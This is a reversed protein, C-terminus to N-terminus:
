EVLESPYGVESKSGQLGGEVPSPTRQGSRNGGAFSVGRSLTVKSRKLSARGDRLLRRSVADAPIALLKEDIRYLTDGARGSTPLVSVPSVQREPTTISTSTVGGCPTPAPSLVGSLPPTTSPASSGSSCSPPTTTAAPAQAASATSFAPGPRPAPAPRLSALQTYNVNVRVGEERIKINRRKIMEVDEEDIRNSNNSVDRIQQESTLAPRAAPSACSTESSVSEQHRRLREDFYELARIEAMTRVPVGDEPPTDYGESDSPCPTDVEPIPSLPQSTFEDPGLVFCDRRTLPPRNSTPSQAAPQLRQQSESTVAALDQDTDLEVQPRTARYLTVAVLIVLVLGQVPKPLQDTALVLPAYLKTIAM